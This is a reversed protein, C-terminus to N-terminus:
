QLTRIRDRVDRRSLTEFLQGQNATRPPLPGNKRKTPPSAAFPNKGTRREYVALNEQARREWEYRAMSQSETAEEKMVQFLVLYGDTILPVAIKSFQWKQRVEIETRAVAALEPFEIM